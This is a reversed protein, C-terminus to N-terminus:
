IIKIKIIIKTLKKISNNRYTKDMFFIEPHKIPLIIIRTHKKLIIINIELIIKAHKNEIIIIGHKQYIKELM